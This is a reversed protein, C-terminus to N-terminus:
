FIYLSDLLITSFFQNAPLLPSVSTYFLSISMPSPDDKKYVDAAEKYWHLAVDLDEEVGYGHEYCYGLWECANPDSNKLGPGFCLLETAKRFWKVATKYDKKVGKGEFFMRGIYCESTAWGAFLRIGHFKCSSLFCKMANEYDGEHFYDIGKQHLDIKRQSPISWTCLEFIHTGYQFIIKCALLLFIGVFGATLLTINIQKAAYLDFGVYLSAILTGIVLLTSRLLGIKFESMRHILPIRQELMKTSGSAVIGWISGGVALVILLWTENEIIFSTINDM